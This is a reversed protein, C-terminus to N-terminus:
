RRRWWLLGGITLAALPILAVSTLFVLNIDSESLAALPRFNSDRPPIAILQEQGALWNIMNEMLLRNGIADQNHMWSNTAFAANGLVILRSRADDGAGGTGAGELAVAAAFPGRADDAACDIQPSTQLEQFDTKACSLETTKLLETPDKGDVSSVTISHTGPLFVGYAELNEALPTNPFSGFLPVPLNGRYNLGPDLLLNKDLGVGWARLTETLGITTNPDSMLLVRGGGDLYDKILQDNEPSFPSTPGAIVIARTDAPLTGSITALNLPEVKYNVAKLFDAVAGMGEVDFDAPSYEGQGTTFYVAPQQTQTVKLIANTFAGEEFPDYLKETRPHEPNTSEFVLTGPVANDYKAALVPNEDPDVYQVVIKDSRNQYERLLPEAQQRLPLTAPTFFGTVQVPEPLAELVQLTQQSLTFEKNATLDLRGSFQRDAIYNIAALIGVFVLAFVIVNLGQWAVRSNAAHRDGTRPRTILYFAVCVVGIAGLLLLIDTRPNVVIRLLLAGVILALGLAGVPTSWKALSSM